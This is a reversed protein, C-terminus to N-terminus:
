VDHDERRTPPTALLAMSQNQLRAYADALRQRDGPEFVPPVFQAYANRHAELVADCVEAVRAQRLWPESFAVKETRGQVSLRVAVMQNASYAEVPVGVWRNPTVQDPPLQDLAAAEKALRTTEALIADLSDWSLVDTPAAEEPAPAVPLTSSGLTANALLFAEDFMSSLSTGRARDRWRNSIRVKTLRRDDDVWIRVSLSSDPYGQDPTWEEGAGTPVLLDDSAAGDLDDGTPTLQGTPGDGASEDTWMSM